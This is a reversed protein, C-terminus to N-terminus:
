LPERVLNGLAARFGLFADTIELDHGFGLSDPYSNEGTSELAFDGAALRLHWGAGDIVDASYRSAWRSVGARKAASWFERWQADTPTVRLTDIPVGPRWDWPRRWLLVTTERLELTVSEDAFGGFEFLLEDPVGSSPLPGTPDACGTMMVVTMLCALVARRFKM